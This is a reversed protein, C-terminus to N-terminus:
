GTPRDTVVTCDASLVVIRPGDPGETSWVDVPRGGVMATAHLRLTVAPDALSGPLGGACAPGLRDLAEASSQAGVEPTVADDAYADAYADDVLADVRDVLHDVSPFAGLDGAEVTTTSQPTSGGSGSSEDGAEPAAATAEGGRDDASHSTGAEADEQATAPANGSDATEDDDSGGASIIALGAVGVVVAVAAAAAGLWRPAGRRRAGGLHSSPSGGARGTARSLEARRSALDPVGGPGAGAADSDEPATGANVGAEDMAAEDFAALAAALARDRAEASPAPVDTRLAARAAEMQAARAVVEPRSRAAAEDAGGLVGDLLASALEDVTPAGSGPEDSRPRHPDDPTM